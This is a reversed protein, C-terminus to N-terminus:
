NKIESEGQEFNIQMHKSTRQYMQIQSTVTMCKVTRHTRTELPQVVREQQIEKSNYTGKRKQSRKFPNLKQHTNEM